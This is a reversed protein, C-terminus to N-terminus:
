IGARRCLVGLNYLFRSSYLSRNVQLHVLDPKAEQIARFTRVAEFGFARNRNWLRPQNGWGDAGKRAHPSLIPTEVSLAGLERVLDETYTAIGCPEQFTSLIVIRM